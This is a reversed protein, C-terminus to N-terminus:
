VDYEYWREMIANVMARGQEVYAEAKALKEETQNARSRERQVDMLATQCRLKYTEAELVASCLREILEKKTMKNLRAALGHDLSLNVTECGDAREDSWNTPNMSSM